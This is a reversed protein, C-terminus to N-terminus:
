GVDLAELRKTLRALDVKVATLEIDKVMEGDSCGSKLREQRQDATELRVSGDPLLYGVRGVHKDEITFDGLFESMLDRIREDVNADTIVCVPVRGAWLEEERAELHERATVNAPGGWPISDGDFGHKILDKQSKVEDCDDNQAYCDRLNTSLVGYADQDDDAWVLEIYEKRVAYLRSM